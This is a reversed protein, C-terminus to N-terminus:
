RTESPAAVEIRPNRPDRLPADLSNVPGIEALRQEVADRILTPFFRVRARSLKSTVVDWHDGGRAVYDPVALAYLAQERIPKRAGQDNVLEANLLRNEEWNEVEGDGNLDKRSVPPAEPPLVKLSLGSVQILGHAGSTAIQLVTKLERGTLELRTVSNDFPLARYLTEYTIPGAELQTRIGGSNMLGIPTDAHARLADAVLNGFESESRRPHSVPRAAFGLARGRIESTRALATDLTQQVEPTSVLSKGLFTALVATPNDTKRSHACEGSDKNVRECVPLPGNIRTESPRVRGTAADIRMRLLNVYQGNAGAQIVPVGSVWHHVIQHSHGAIVADLTGPPLARLLTVIEDREGCPLARDSPAHVRKPPTSPASQEFDCKLGAHALLVIVRAGQARLAQAEALIIPAQDRFELQRVHDPLTTSPTDITTIGIVGVTTQGLQVKRSPLTNPLELRQGTKRDFINAVVFPYRAESLRQKLAGLVDDGSKLPTGQGIPGYDFEHNGIVGMQVGMRNFVEIVSAGEVLNSELTGQMSDGAELVLLRDGYLSRATAIMRALALAGGSETGGPNKQPLLAGHFDNFALIAIEDPGPTLSPKSHACSILLAGLALTGLSRKLEM